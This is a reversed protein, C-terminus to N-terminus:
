KDDLEDLLPIDGNNILVTIKEAQDSTIEDAKKADKVAQLLATKLKADTLGLEDALARKMVTSMPGDAQRRGGMMRDGRPGGGGPGGGFAMGGRQRGGMTKGGPGGGPAGFRAGAREFRRGDGHGDIHSAVAGGVAGAVVLAAVAAAIHWGM